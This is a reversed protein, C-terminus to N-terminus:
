NDGTNILPRLFSSDVDATSKRTGGTSNLSRHDITTSKTRSSTSGMSISRRRKYKGCVGDTIEGGGTWACCQWHWFSIRCHVASYTFFFSEVFLLSRAVEHFAQAWRRYAVPLLGDMMHLQMLKKAILVTFMAFLLCWIWIRRIEIM